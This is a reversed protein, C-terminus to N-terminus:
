AGEPTPELARATHEEAPELCYCCIGREDAVFLPCPDPTQEDLRHPILNAVSGFLRDLLAAWLALLLTM